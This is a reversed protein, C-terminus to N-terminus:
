EPDQVLRLFTAAEKSDPDIKNAANWEEIALAKKGQKYFTLGLHLLVPVYSPNISKAKRLFQIAQNLDGKERYALGMKTLIEGSEPRLKLAMNYEHLAEDFWGIEVYADGIDIHKGALKGQIFPDVSFNSTQVVKAAKKFSEEAEEFRGSENLTIVLNLAAETYNPNIELARRFAKSAKQFNDAAHYIMGLKSHVEALNPEQQLVMEFCERAEKFEGRDFHSKGRIYMDHVAEKM